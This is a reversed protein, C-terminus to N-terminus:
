TKLHNLGVLLSWFTLTGAVWCCVTPYYNFVLPRLPFRDFHVNGGQRRRRRWNWKSHNNWKRPDGHHSWVVCVLLRTSPLRSQPNTPTRFRFAHQTHLVLRGSPTHSEAATRRGVIRWRSGAGHPKCLQFACVSPCENVWIYGVCVCLMCKVKCWLSIPCITSLDQEPIFVKERQRQGERKERLEVNFPLKKGAVTALHKNVPSHQSKVQKTLWSSLSTMQPSTIWKKWMDCLVTHTIPWTSWYSLLLTHYISELILNLCSM